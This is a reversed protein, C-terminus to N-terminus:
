LPWDRVGMDCQCQAGAACTSCFPECRPAACECPTLNPSYCQVSVEQNCRATCLECLATINNSGTSSSDRERSGTSSEEGTSSREEGTSSREEGTSSSHEHKFLVPSLRETSAQVLPLAGCLLVLTALWVLTRCQRMPRRSASSVVLIFSLYLSLYVAINNKNTSSCVRINSISVCSEFM